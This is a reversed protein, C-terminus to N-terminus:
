LTVHFNPNPIGDHGGSDLVPSKSMSGWDRSLMQYHEKYLNDYAKAREAEPKVSAFYQRLADYIPLIQYEEPLLGVEGIIYAAGAGATLSTGTYDKTLEIETNSTRSAIEYWLGDGNATATNSPTVRLWRGVMSATWTTGSGTVTEDSNSIADVTGTTYDAISLDKYKRLANISVTLSASSPAPWLGIQGDFQYWWEPTDSYFNTSQNLKEWFERSPAEKPTHRTTGQTLYVSFVRGCNAPLQYFQTQAATTVTFQRMMFTWRRAALIKRESNNLLTDFLTLTGSSADGSLTGALNRRGTYTLAM